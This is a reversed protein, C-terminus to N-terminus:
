MKCKHMLVLFYSANEFTVRTRSTYMMNEDSASIKRFKQTYHLETEIGWSLVVIFKSVFSTASSADFLGFTDLSLLEKVDWFEIRPYKEKALQVFDEASDLSM